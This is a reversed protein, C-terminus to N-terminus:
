SGNEKGLEKAIMELVDLIAVSRREAHKEHSEAWVMFPALALTVDTRGRLEANEATLTDVKDRLEHIQRQLERNTAQLGEVATGAGGRLLILGLAVVGVVALWGPLTGWVQAGASAILPWM